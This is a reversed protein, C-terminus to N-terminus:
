RLAELASIKDIRRQHREVGSFEASLWTRVIDCALGAGIVREGMCLINANNHERSSHATFTDHCLAARIGHVKNATIDMGIGSGCVLIGRAFEGEAVARAVAKGIDPYDSASRDFVGFDRCSHGLEALLIKIEEKLNFGAHDSGIAINM